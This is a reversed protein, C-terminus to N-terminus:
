YHVFYSCTTKKSSWSVAGDSLLFVYGFTSKKDDIDRAYDNDSYVILEGNGRKRYIVGLDVTDKLYRLVRKTAQLHLETPSAMFISILSVEYTLNPRTTTLYIFSWILQKHMTANVKAGEEDKTRRSGLVVPDKVSCSKEMGVKELVEKQM